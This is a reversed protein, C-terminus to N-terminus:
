RVPKEPGRGRYADVFQETAARDVRPLRLRHRWATLILVSQPDPRPVAVVADWAGNYRTTLGRLWQEDEVSLKTRDYYIVIHGHELNHVLYGPDVASEYFRPDAPSGYHPGSTPPDTGYRPALGAPVHADGESSFSEVNVPATGPRTLRSVGWYGGALLVVVGAAILAGRQLRARTAERARRAREREAAEQRRQRKLTKGSPERM